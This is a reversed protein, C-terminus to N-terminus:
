ELVATKGEKLMDLVQVVGVLVPILLEQLQKVEQNHGVIM